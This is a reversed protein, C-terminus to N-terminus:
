FSRINGRSPPSTPTNSGESGSSVQDIEDRDLEVIEDRHNASMETTM